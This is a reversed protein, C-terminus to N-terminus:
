RIPLMRYKYKVCKPCQLVKHHVKLMGKNEIAYLRTDLWVHRCFMQKIKKWM